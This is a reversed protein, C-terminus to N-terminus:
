QSVETEIADASHRGCVYGQQLAVTLPVVTQCDECRLLIDVEVTSGEAGNIVGKSELSSLANTCKEETVSKAMDISNLEWDTDSSRKKKDEGVCDIIHKRITGYSVMDKLIRDIRVGDSILSDRLEEKALTKDGTLLEYDSDVRDGLTERGAKDYEAYLLRKNFWEALSRYGQETHGDKGRWRKILANNLSDDNPLDMQYIEVVRGLKCNCSDM